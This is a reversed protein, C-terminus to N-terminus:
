LNDSVRLLRFKLLHKINLSPVPFLAGASAVQILQSSFGHLLPVQTTASLGQLPYKGKIFSNPPYASKYRSLRSISFECALVTPTLICIWTSKDSPWGTEASQYPLRQLATLTLARPNKRRPSSPLFMPFVYSKHNSRTSDPFATARSWVSSRERKALKRSGVLEKWLLSDFYTLKHTVRWKVTAGNIAKESRKSTVHSGM